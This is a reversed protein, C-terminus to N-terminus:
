EVYADPHTEIGEFSNGLIKLLQCVQSALMYMDGIIALYLISLRTKAEGSQIRGLQENQLAISRKKLADKKSLIDALDMPQGANMHQHVDAMLDVFQTKFNQLGSVQEALLGKHHNAVHEYSRSTIDAYGDAIKQLRRVTQLYNREEAIGGKEHLLRLSKFTNAIIINSWQRAKKAKSNENKLVYVNSNFLAETSVDLSGSITQLLSDIHTFTTAVADRLDTVKQLNFIRDGEEAKMRSAHRGHNKWLVFILLALLAVVAFLKGFFLATAVLAAAIFACLATLLWGGVVTLVGTIRYVASERGWAHDAFSAGMAVMFTVYTTSLPLKHSTGYSILASAVMINVAARLLDFSPRDENIRSQYARTDFRRAVASRIFVPTIKQIASFTNLTGRVISRSLFSAGFHEAGEDQQSLDVGTQIVSQAKKSVWLTIAMVSGALLLLVTNAPVKGALAEMSSHIPDATGAAVQYANWGAMPVGIFNVLDNAAFAMAISFTGILVIPKFINMGMMILVQLLIASILTMGGLIHFTHTKIWGVIEPTMFSAGKAGKILIFYTVIALALGGWIAGYRKMTKEYNFTFLMRSLFQVITGTIFAVVVAFFIGGIIVIAKNTNIYDGLLSVSDGAQFIKLLSVAVAAGLLEFVVSVTTSTPLGNSSFTDLLMIDTIMVALFITVLNPMSFFEPHFIGKRAVEMMGSSFTVGALIGLSAFILIVKRSAVRSGISPNLFNVADNSVGVVLDFFAFGALLLVIGLYVELGM